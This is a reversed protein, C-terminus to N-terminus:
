TWEKTTPRDDKEPHEDMFTALAICHWAAAVIHKSGTEEDIDEGAWFQNLHRQLAAYSKSWDYGREWNRDAYKAAGVGYHCALEILFRAPILDHRELKMGKQAGTDPDTTRIEGTRMDHATANAMAEALSVSVNSPTMRCSCFRCSGDKRHSSGLHWCGPTLCRPNRDAM